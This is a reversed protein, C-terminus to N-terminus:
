IGEEGDIGVTANLIEENISNVLAIAQNIDIERTPFKKKLNKLSSIGQKLKKNAEIGFTPLDKEDITGLKTQLEKAAEVFKSIETEVPDSAYKTIIQKVKAIQDNSEWLIHELIQLHKTKVTYSGNLLAVARIVSLVSRFRRDSPRIGEDKLDRRINTIAEAIERGITVRKAEEQLFEVEQLTIIPTPNKSELLLMNMFEQDEGIYDVELRIMFRDFLAALSEDEPYENSAAYLSMLPAKVPKQGNYFLRENIITLLSNLIASNAKFCEDIFAMHAEPLMGESNRVYNGKELESLSLPGFLEDPTSFPTLLRQFYEMGKIMKSFQMFVDSKATGPPGIVLFHQKAVLAIIALNIMEDRAVFNSMLFRRVHKVKVLVSKLENSNGSEEATAPSAFSFPNSNPAQVATKKSDTAFPFPMKM